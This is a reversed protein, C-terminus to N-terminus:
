AAKGEKSWWFVEMNSSLKMYYKIQNSKDNEVGGVLAESCTNLNKNGRKIKKIL